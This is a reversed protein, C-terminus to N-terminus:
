TEKNPAIFELVGSKSCFYTLKDTGNQSGLGDSTDLNLNPPRAVCDIGQDDERVAHAVTRAVVILNLAAECVCPVDHNGWFM